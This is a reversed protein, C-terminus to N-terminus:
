AQTELKQEPIADNFQANTIKVLGYGISIFIDFGDYVANTFLLLTHYHLCSASSNELSIVNWRSGDPLKLQDVLRHGPYHGFQSPM